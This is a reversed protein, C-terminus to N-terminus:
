RCKRSPATFSQSADNEPRKAISRERLGCWRTPLRASAYEVYLPTHVENILMGALRGIRRTPRSERERMGMATRTGGGLDLAQGSTV